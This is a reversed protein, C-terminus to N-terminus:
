PWHADVSKLFNGRGKGQRLLPTEKKKVLVEQGGLLEEIGGAAGAEVYLM